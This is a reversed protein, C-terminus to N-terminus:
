VMGGTPSWGSTLIDQHNNVGTPLRAGGGSDQGSTGSGSLMELDFYDLNFPSTDFQSLDPVDGDPFLDLMQPDLLPHFIDITHNPVIVAPQSHSARQSKTVGLPEEYHQPHQEPNPYMSASNSSHNDLPEHLTLLPPDDAVQCTVEHPPLWSDDETDNPTQPIPILPPNEDDAVHNSARSELGNGAGISDQEIGITELQGPSLYGDNKSRLIRNFELISAQAHPANVRFNTLKRPDIHKPEDELVVPNKKHVNYLCRVFVKLVASFKWDEAALRIMEMNAKVNIHARDKVVSNPSWMFPIQIACGCYAAYAVFSPMACVRDYDSLVARILESAACAHEYAIQASLLRASLWTEDGDGWCFLPVISAHLACLAQHYVMNILMVRPIEDYPTDMLNSPTLRFEPPLQLWWISLEEDLAHIAPVRTKLEDPTKFFALVFNWLTLARIVEMYVGGNSTKSNLFAPATDTIGSKFDKSPWPLPLNDIDATQRVISFDEGNHCHMLYFTWFRRRRIECKLSKQARMTDEGLGTISMLNFATGSGKYLYCTRWAGQSHWFLGLTLFTVINDEDLDEVEQFVLKGARQAWEIMFGHEKLTAQGSADRYFKAGWACVSLVIHPRVTGAALSALFSPKHLLLHANYVHDFYIDVLTPVLTTPIGLYGEQSVPPRNIGSTSIANIAVPSSEGM